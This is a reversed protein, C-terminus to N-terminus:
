VRAALGILENRNLKLGTTAPLPLYRVPIQYGPLRQRLWPELHASDIASLDNIFAVPRQGYEDDAVPVVICESIGPYDCVTREIAEPQINEGGCIFQNDLRGIVSLARQSDRQGLDRTAFWGQQDLPQQCQGNHYYGLFLSEGKVLIENNPSLKLQCHPLLRALSGDRCVPGTMVQSGMETLGYSIWSQLPQQALWDLVAPTITGGGVLLQRVSSGTFDNKSQQLRHLQTAVASLHTLRSEGLLQQLPEDTAPIILSAGALLCRFVVALGGIHYLPLSLAWGDDSQLPILSRSGRASAIHNSFSHLALKPTGSSGSTLVGTLAADPSTLSIPGITISADTSNALPPLHLKRCSQPLPEDDYSLDGIFWAADCREILALQQSAPFAPNIPILVCGLRLSTAILRVIEAKDYSAILLHQGPKVGLKTLARVQQEVQQHLQDYRWLVSPANSRREVLAIAEPQDSAHQALPCTPSNLM